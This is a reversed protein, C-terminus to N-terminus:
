GGPLPREAPLFLYDCLSATEPTYIGEPFREIPVFTFDGDTEAHKAIQFMSYGRGTMLTALAENRAVIPAADAAANPFLVECVIVPRHKALLQEMGRLAFLEAGEVDIKVLAIRSGGLFPQIGDLPLMAVGLSVQDHAPRLDAILTAGTDTTDDPNINLLAPAAEDSAAFCFTQCGAFANAAILENLYGIAAPNPDIGVYRGNPRAARFELLTQGVSTGIDLFIEDAAVPFLEFMHTKWTRRRMASNLLGMGLRGRLPITRRVGFSTMPIAGRWQTLATLGVGSVFSRVSM